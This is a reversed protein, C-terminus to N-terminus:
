PKKNATNHIGEERKSLKGSLAALYYRYAPVYRELQQYCLAINVLVNPNPALRNSVFYYSLAQRYARQRYHQNGIRFAVDAQDASGTTPTQAYVSGVMGVSALCLAVCAIGSKTLTM